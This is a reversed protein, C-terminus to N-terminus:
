AGVQRTPRTAQVLGLVVLGVVALGSLLAGLRLSGPRYVFTVTSPGAPVRVARFAHNVRVIPTAIGNV